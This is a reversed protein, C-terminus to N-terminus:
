RLIDYASNTIISRYQLILLFITFWGHRHIPRDYLLEQVKVINKKVIRIFYNVHCSSM